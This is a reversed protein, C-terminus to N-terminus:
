FSLRLRPAAAQRSTRPRRLAAAAASRLREPSSPKATPSRARRSPRPSPKRVSFEAELAPEDVVIKSHDSPDYRVPIIDAQEYEGVKNKDLKTQLETTSGDDFRLRPEVRYIHHTGGMGNWRYDAKLVVARGELGERLLKREGFM